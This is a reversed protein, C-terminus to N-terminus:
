KANVREQKEFHGTKCTDRSPLRSVRQRRGQGMKALDGVHTVCVEINCISTERLSSGPRCRVELSIASARGGRPSPTASGAVKLVHVMSNPGDVMEQSVLITNPGGVGELIM